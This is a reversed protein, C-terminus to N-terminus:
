SIHRSPSAAEAPPPGGNFIYNILYVADAINVEGDANADGSFYPAPPLGDNFVFNIITVADGVNLDGDFNADGSVYAAPEMALSLDLHQSMMIATDIPLYGHRRVQVPQSGGGVMPIFYGGDTDTTDGQDGVAGIIIETGDLLPNGDTYSIDGSLAFLNWVYVSMSDVVVNGARDTARAYVIYDGNHFYSTSWSRYRDNSEILSDGDTNTLNMYFVRHDYDGQTYCTADNRYLVDVNYNWPLPGTFTVANTWPISSDGLIQYELSHPTVKWLSNVQDYVRCVIDVDGSLAEGVFFYSESQNQAFAFLQDGFADEFVPPITDDIVFGQDLPNDVFDWDATWTLGTHRIKVFHLHHFDAVPWYVIDGLYQGEEVYEGETVAISAEDLHAYLWGDCPGEDNCEGIAVRWHLEASITLVAKVWGAEVAYVPTGAPVLLDIGPHLYASGGYRQYEGYTNGIKQIGNQPPVPWDIAGAPVGGLCCFSIISIIALRRLV